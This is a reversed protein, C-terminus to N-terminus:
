VNQHLTNHLFVYQLVELGPTFFAKLTTDTVEYHMPIESPTSWYIVKNISCILTHPKIVCPILYM